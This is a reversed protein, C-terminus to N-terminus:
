DHMRLGILIAMSIIYLIDWLYICREPYTSQIIHNFSHISAMIINNLVAESDIFKISYPTLGILCARAHPSLKCTIHGYASVYITSNPLQYSGCYHVCILRYPLFPSHHKYFFNGPNQIPVWNQNSTWCEFWLTLQQLTPLCYKWTAIVENLNEHEGRLTTPSFQAKCTCSPACSHHLGEQCDEGNFIM